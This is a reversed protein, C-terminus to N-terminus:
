RNGACGQDCCSFLSERCKRALAKTEASIASRTPLEKRGASIINGLESGSRNGTQLCLTLASVLSSQSSSQSRGAFSYSASLSSAMTRSILATKSSFIPRRICAPGCNSRFVSSGGRHMRHIIWHQEAAALSIFVSLGHVFFTVEKSHSQPPGCALVVVYMCLLSGVIVM